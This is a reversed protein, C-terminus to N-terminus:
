KPEGQTPTTAMHNPLEHKPCDRLFDAFYGDQMLGDIACQNRGMCYCEASALRCCPTRAFHVCTSCAKSAPNKHCSRMHRRASAKSQYTKRSCYPCRFGVIAEPERETDTAMAPTSGAGTGEARKGLTQGPWGPPGAPIAPIM